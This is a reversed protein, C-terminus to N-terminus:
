NARRGIILDGDIYSENVQTFMYYVLIVLNDVTNSKKFSSSIQRVIYKRKETGNKYIMDFRKNLRKRSSTSCRLYFRIDVAVEEM